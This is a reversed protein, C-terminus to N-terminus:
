FKTGVGLGLLHVSASYSGNYASTGNPDSGYTGFPVSTAYDRDDFLVYMYGGEITWGGLKQAIGVSFLHRDADPLRASFREDGQGTEDFTYGFRLQTEPTVDWTAGLRYANADDWNNTSTATGGALATSTIRIQDFESWGTREIDFEIALARTAQYRAGVQLMWPFDLNATAPATIVTTATGDVDVTIASRYSGGFSWNGAVHLIALNFGYDGGDGAIKAGASDLRVDRVYYYDLGAAISTNVGLKVAVNPNINVMDIKSRTPHAAAAPSPPSLTQFTGSAWNTELGFPAGISLGWTVTPSIHGTAFLNPVYFPSDVDSDHSGTSTTVSIDPAIAILGAVVTTGDHFAMAAPNYTLAGPEQANAVLANGTGLGALSAEPLRFGSAHATFAGGALAAGILVKLTQQKFRM